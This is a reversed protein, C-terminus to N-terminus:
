PQNLEVLLNEKMLDFFCLVMNTLFNTVTMFANHPVDVELVMMQYKRWSIVPPIGVSTM